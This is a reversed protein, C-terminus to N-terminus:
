WLFNYAWYNASMPNKYTLRGNKDVIKSARARYLRRREKDYHNLHSYLGLGTSDRFQESFAHGFHIWEGNYYVKYKKNKRNSKEFRM